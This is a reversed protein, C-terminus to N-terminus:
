TSNEPHTPLLVFSDPASVDGLVVVDGVAYGPNLGGAANTVIAMCDPNPHSRLFLILM